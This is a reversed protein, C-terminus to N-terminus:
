AHIARGSPWGAAAGAREKWREVNVGMVLLWLTLTLEGLGGAATTYLSLSLGLPPALLNAFSQTLWGLGACVMLVGVIRPLFTSRFILCGVLLCHLGFFTFSINSGLADVRLFVLALAQLQEAKFVSSYPPNGLVVLPALRFVFTVAGSACGALSFFAALLSVGRNV